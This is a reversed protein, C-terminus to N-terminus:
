LRLRAANGADDFVKKLLRVYDSVLENRPRTWNGEINLGAFLRRITENDTQNIVSGNPLQLNDHQGPAWTPGSNKSPAGPTPSDSFIQSTTLAPNAM